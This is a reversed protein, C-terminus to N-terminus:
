GNVSSEALQDDHEARLLAAILQVRQEHDLATALEAASEPVGPFLVRSPIVQITTGDPQLVHQYEGTSEEEDISHIYAGPSCFRLLAELEDMYGYGASDYFGTGDLHIGEDDQEPQDYGSFLSKVQELATEALQAPDVPQDQYFRAIVAPYQEPKITANHFTVHYSM